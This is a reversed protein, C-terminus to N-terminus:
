STSVPINSSEVKPPESWDPNISIKNNAYIYKGIELSFETVPIEVVEILASDVNNDKCYFELVQQPTMKEATAFDIRSQYIVKTTKDIILTHM